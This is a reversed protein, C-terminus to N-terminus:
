SPSTKGVRTSTAARVVRSHVSNTVILWANRELEPHESHNAIMESVWRFGEQSELMQRTLLNEYKERTEPSAYRRIVDESMRSGCSPCNIHHWLKHKLDAAISLRVCQLCVNREHHCDASLQITPFYGFHKTETCIICEVQAAEEKHPTLKQTQLPTNITDTAMTATLSPFLYLIINHWRPGHHFHEDGRLSKSSLASTLTGLPCVDYLLSM